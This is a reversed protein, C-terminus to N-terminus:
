EANFAWWDRLADECIKKSESAIKYVPSGKVRHAALLM